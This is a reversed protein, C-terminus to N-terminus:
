YHVVEATQLGVLQNVSFGQADESFSLDMLGSSGTYTISDLLLEVTVTGVLSGGAGVKIGIGFVHTDDFGSTAIAGVDLSINIFTRTGTFASDDMPVLPATGLTFDSDVAFAQLYVQGTEDLLSPRLRFTVVTDHLDLGPQNFTLEFFATDNPRTLPV